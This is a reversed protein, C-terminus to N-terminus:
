FPLDDTGDDDDVAAKSPRQEPEGISVGSAIEAAVSEPTIAELETVKDALGRTYAYCEKVLRKAEDLLADLDGLAAEPDKVKAEIQKLREVNKKYKNSDM